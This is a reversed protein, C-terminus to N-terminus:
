SLHALTTRGQEARLVVYAQDATEIQSEITYITVLIKYPVYKKYFYVGGYTLNRVAHM